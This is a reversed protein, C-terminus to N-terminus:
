KWCAKEDGLYRGGHVESEPNASM